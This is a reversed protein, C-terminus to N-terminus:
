GHGGSPVNKVIFLGNGGARGIRELARRIEPAFIVPIAFASGTIGLARSVWVGTLEGPDHPIYGVVLVVLGRVLAM